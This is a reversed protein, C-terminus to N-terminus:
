ALDIFVEGDTIRVPYSAIPTVAPMRVARGTRIDFCGGHRPCKVIHGELTGESLSAEAHSCLDDTAYVEDGVRYLAVDCDDLAVLWPRGVPLDALAAVRIWQSM